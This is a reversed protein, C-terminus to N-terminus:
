VRPSGCVLFRKTLSAMRLSKWLFNRARYMTYSVESSPQSTKSSGLCGTYVKVSSTLASLFFLRIIQRDFHEACGM